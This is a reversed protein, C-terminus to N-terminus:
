RLGVTHLFAEIAAHRCLHQLDTHGAMLIQFDQKSAETESVIM